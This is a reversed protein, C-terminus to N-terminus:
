SREPGGPLVVTFHRVDGSGAMAAGGVEVWAHGEIGGGRRPALGVRLEAPHGHRRLLREAALARSLCATGPLARSARGVARGIEAAGHRRGRAPGRGVPVAALLRRAAGLPALALALRAAAVLGLAELALRWEAASRVRWGLM